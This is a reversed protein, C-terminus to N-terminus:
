EFNQILVSPFNINRWSHNLLSDVVYILPLNKAPLKKLSPITTMIKNRGSNNNIVKNVEIDLPRLGQIHLGLNLEQDDWPFHKRQLFFIRRTIM